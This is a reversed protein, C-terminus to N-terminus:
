QKSDTTPPMEFSLSRGKIFLDYLQDVLNEFTDYEETISGIHSHGRNGDFVTLSNGGWDAKFAVMESLPDRGRLDSIIQDAEEKSANRMKWSSNRLREMLQENQEPDLENVRNVIYRLIDACKRNTDKAHKKM